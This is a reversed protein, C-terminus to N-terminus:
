LGPVFDYSAPIQAPPTGYVIAIEEHEHFVIDRYNGGASQGNVYVILPNSSGARYDFIQTNNFAKGWIDFFKGLTFDMQTPSEVHVVGSSDHTHMWYLCKYPIIGVGAPITYPQGNIFIDLHSHIHMVTGELGCPIGDILPPSHIFFALYSWTGIVAIAILIVVLLVARSDKM